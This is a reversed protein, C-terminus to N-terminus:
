NMNLREHHSTLQFQYAMIWCSGNMVWNGDETTYEEETDITTVPQLPYPYGFCCYHDDSQDLQQHYKSMEDTDPRHRHLM